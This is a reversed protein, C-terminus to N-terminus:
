SFLCFADFSDGSGSDAATRGRTSGTRRAARPRQCPTGVGHPPPGHSLPGHSPLPDLWTLKQAGLPTWGPSLPIESGGEGGGPPTPTARQSLSPIWRPPLTIGPDGGGWLPNPNVGRGSPALGQAGAGAGGSLVAGQHAGACVCVRPISRPNRWLGVWKEVTSFMKQQIDRRGGVGGGLTLQGSGVPSGM